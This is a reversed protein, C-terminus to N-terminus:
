TISVTRMGAWFQVADNLFQAPADARSEIKATAETADLVRLIVEHEDRLVKSAEHL